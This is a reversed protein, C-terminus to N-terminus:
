SRPQRFAEESDRGVPELNHTTHETVSAPTRAAQDLPDTVPTATMHIANTTSEPLAKGRDTPPTLAGFARNLRVLGIVTAPIMFALVPVLTFFAGDDRQTLWVGLCMLSMIILGGASLGLITTGSKIKEVTEEFNTELAAKHGALGHGCARCYKQDLLNRIGCKPCFM